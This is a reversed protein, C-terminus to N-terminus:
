FCAYTSVNHFKLMGYFLVMQIHILIFHCLHRLFSDYRHVTCVLDYSIGMRDCKMPLPLIICM